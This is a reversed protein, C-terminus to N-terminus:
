DLKEYGSEEIDDELILGEHLKHDTERRYIYYTVASILTIMALLLFFISGSAHDRHLSDFEAKNQM